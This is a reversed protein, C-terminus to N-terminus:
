LVLEYSLLIGGGLVIEEGNLKYDIPIDTARDMKEVWRTGDTHHPPFALHCMTQERGEDGSWSM